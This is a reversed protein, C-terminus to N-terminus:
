SHIATLMSEDDLILYGMVSQRAVAPIHSKSGRGRYKEIAPDQYFMFIGSGPTRTALIYRGAGKAIRIEQEIGTGIWCEENTVVLVMDITKVLESFGAEWAPGRREGDPWHTNADIIEANPWLKKTAAIADDVLSRLHEQVYKPATVYIKKPEAEASRPKVTLKLPPLSEAGETAIAVPAEHRSPMASVGGVLARVNALMASDALLALVSTHLETPIRSLNSLITNSPTNM